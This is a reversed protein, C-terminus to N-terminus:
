EEDTTDYQETNETQVWAEDSEPDNDPTYEQTNETVVWSEQREHDERDHTV